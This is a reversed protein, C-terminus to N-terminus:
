LPAQALVQVLAGVAQVFAGVAVHHDGVGDLQDDGVPVVALAARSGLHLGATGFVASGRLIGLIGLGPLPGDEEAALEVDLPGVEHFLRGLLEETKTRASLHAQFIGVDYLALLYHLIGPAIDGLDAAGVIGCRLGAAACPTGDLARNVPDVGSLALLDAQSEVVPEEGLGVHALAM